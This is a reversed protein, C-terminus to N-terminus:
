GKKPDRESLRNSREYKGGTADKEDESLCAKREQVVLGCNTVKEGEKAESHSKKKEEPPPSIIAGWPQRDKKKSRVLGSITM